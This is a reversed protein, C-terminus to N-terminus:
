SLKEEIISLTKDVAQNLGSPKKGGATAFFKQGGGGGDIMGSVAKILDVANLVGNNALEDSVIVALQAKDESEVGLVAVMDQDCESRLQFAIDKLSDGFMPKLVSHMLMVGGVKRADDKIRLKVAQIASQKLAEVQKALSSNEALVAEVSKRLDKQKHLMQGLEKLIDSQANFFEEAKDGVVAEIRRIGAAVSSESVIKFIGIQGTSKVHTGGCLELSEGFRIARVVDGYKEGFLAIAGMNQAESIPLSRFEELEMNLRIERNVEKEVAKIEEDSLKQFHSFDFRLYDPHVLSGKQEIHDGLHKRLAKHLLHTATHNNATMRRREGDVVARFKGSLDAPLKPAIHIILNNEKKVDVIPYREGEAEIYGSDGVQGGSEAYFPTINFVLHYLEKNKSKVKRYKVLHVDAELYDYGVFEEIEDDHLVIWDDTEVVAANRAREKQAKMEQEFEERNALLGNEKLILETLDLPFGFTDYLDFVLKGDVVKQNLKKKDAIIKELLQICTALTRLFSEEEERVVKEILDRRAELEPYAGGM